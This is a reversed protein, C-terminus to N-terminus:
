IKSKDKLVIHNSIFLPNKQDHSKHTRAHTYIYIYTYIHIHTATPFKKSIHILIKKLKLTLNHNM